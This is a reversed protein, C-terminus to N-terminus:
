LNTLGEVELFSVTTHRQMEAENYDSRFADTVAASNM